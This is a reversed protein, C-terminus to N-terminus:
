TNISKSALCVSPKSRRVYPLYTLIIHSKEQEAKQLWRVPLDEKSQCSSLGNPCLYLGLGDPPLELYAACIAVRTEEHKRYVRVRQDGLKGGIKAM